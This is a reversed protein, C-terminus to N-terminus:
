FCWNARLFDNIHLYKLIAVNRKEVIYRRLYGQHEGDREDEPGSTSGQKEIVRFGGVQRKLAIRERIGVVAGEGLM